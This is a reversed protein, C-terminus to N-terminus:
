KSIYEFHIRNPHFLTLVEYGTTGIQRAVADAFSEKVKDSVIIVREEVKPRPKIDTIDVVMQDMSIRGITTAIQDKILVHPWPLPARRLGDAYGASVTALLMPKKATFTCSYGVKDDPKVRHIRSIYTHVKLSPRLKIPCTKPYFPNHGYLAKGTRVMNFHTQPFKLAAASNACHLIPPLLNIKKLKNVIDNFVSLQKLTFGPHTNDADAFHTYLGVIQIKPLNHGLKIIQLIDAPIVGTRHMGTDVKIHIKTFLNIKQSLKSIKRLQKIDTVCLSIHANIATLLNDSHIPSLILIEPRSLHDRILLAEEIRAVGFYNVKESVLHKVVPLLGHGYANAKVIAMLRTDPSLLSRIQKLNYSLNKLNVSATITHRPLSSM